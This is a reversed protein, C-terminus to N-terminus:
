NLLRHDVRSSQCGVVLATSGSADGAKMSIGEVVVVESDVKREEDVFLIM